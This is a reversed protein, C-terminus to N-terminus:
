YIEYQIEGNTKNEDIMLYHFNSYGECALGVRGVNSIITVQKGRIDIEGSNIQYHTDTKDYLGMPIDEKIWVKDGVKYNNKKM